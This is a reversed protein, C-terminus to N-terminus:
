EIIVSVVVEEKSREKVTAQETFLSKIYTQQFNNLYLMFMEAPIEYDRAIKQMYKRKFEFSRKGEIVGLWSNCRECIVGRVFGTTHCHDVVLRKTKSKGLCIKCKQKCFMVRRDAKTVEHYYKM